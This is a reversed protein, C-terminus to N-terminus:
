HQPYLSACGSDNGFDPIPNKTPKLGCFEGMVSRTKDPAAIMEEYQIVCTRGPLKAKLTDMVAYYWQVYERISQLSYAYPHSKSFMKMFIRVTVDDINRKVLVFKASPLIVALRLADTIRAPHTITFINYGGASRLLQKLFHARFASEMGIPVDTLQEHPPLAADQFSRRVSKETISNEFGRKVGPITSILLEATSKGSRSPGLFFLPMPKDNQAAPSGSPIIGSSKLRELLQLDHERQRKWATEMERFLLKNAATFESWASVYDERQNLAAARTFAIKSNQRSSVSATLNATATSVLDTDVLYGPLSALAFLANLNPPGVSISKELAEAAEPLRGLHALTLGLGARATTFGPDLECARKFANAALEYEQQERHLEGLSAFITAETPNIVRARELSLEALETAGLSLYAGGLATLISWNDPDHMAARTLCSVAEQHNGRDSYVLGLTHLAAVFDPHQAILKICINQAEDLKGVQRLREAELVKHRLELLPSGATLSPAQIGQGDQPKKM